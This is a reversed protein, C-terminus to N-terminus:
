RKNKDAATKLDGVPRFAWNKLSSNKEAKAAPDLHVDRLLYQMDILRHQLTDPRRTTPNENPKVGRIGWFQAGRNDDIKRWMNRFHADDREGLEFSAHARSMYEGSFMAESPARM